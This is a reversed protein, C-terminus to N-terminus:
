QEVERILSLCVDEPIGKGRMDIKQNLKYEQFAQPIAQEANLVHAKKYDWQQQLKKVVIHRIKIPDVDEKWEDVLGRLLASKSMNHAMSFLGLLLNDQEPATFAVYQNKNAPKGQTM